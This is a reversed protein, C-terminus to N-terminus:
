QHMKLTVRATFLKVEAISTACALHDNSQSSSLFLSVDSKCFSSLHVTNLFCTDNHQNIWLSPSWSDKFLFIFFPYHHHHHHHNANFYGRLVRQVTAQAPCTRWPCQQPARSRSPTHLRSFGALHVLHGTLVSLPWIASNEFDDSHPPLAQMEHLENLRM